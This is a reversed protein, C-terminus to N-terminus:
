LTLYNPSIIAFIKKLDVSPDSASSPEVQANALAVRTPASAIAVFASM